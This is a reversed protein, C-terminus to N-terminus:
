LPSASNLSEQGVWGLRWREGGQHGDVEDPEPGSRTVGRLQRGRDTPTQQPAFPSPCSHPCLSLSVSHLRLSLSFHQSSCRVWCVRRYSSRSGPVQPGLSPAPSGSLTLGLLHQCLAQRLPFSARGPGSPPELSLGEWGSGCVCPPLSFQGAWAGGAQLEEPAQGGWWVSRPRPQQAGWEGGELSRGWGM